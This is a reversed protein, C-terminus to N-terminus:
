PVEVKLVYVVKKGVADNLAVMLQGSLLKLEYALDKSLCAVTLAGSQLDVVQTQGKANGVFGCLVAEWCRMIKHKYVVSGLRQEKAKDKIVLSIKTFGKSKQTM